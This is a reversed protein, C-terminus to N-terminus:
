GRYVWVMRDAFQSSRTAAFSGRQGKSVPVGHSLVAFITGCIEKAQTEWNMCLRRVTSPICDLPAGDLTSVGRLTSVWGRPPAERQALQNTSRGTRPQVAEESMSPRPKPRTLSSCRFTLPLKFSLFSTCGHFRSCQTRTCTHVHMLVHHWFCLWFSRVSDM